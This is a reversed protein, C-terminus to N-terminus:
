LSLNISLFNFSNNQAKLTWFTGNKAAQISILSSSDDTYSILLANDQTFLWLHMYFCLSRIIVM